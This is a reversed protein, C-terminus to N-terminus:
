INDPKMGDQQVGGMGSQSICILIKVEPNDTVLQGNGRSGELTQWHNGFTGNM